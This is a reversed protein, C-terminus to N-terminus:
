LLFSFFMGFVACAVALVPVLWLARLAKAEGRSYGLMSFTMSFVVALVVGLFLFAPITLSGFDNGPVKAEAHGQWLAWPMPLLGFFYSMTTLVPAPRPWGHHSALPPPQSESRDPVKPRAESPIPPARVSSSPPDPAQPESM